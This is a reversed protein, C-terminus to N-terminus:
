LVILDQLNYIEEIYDQEESTRAHSNFSSVRIIMRDDRAFTKYGNCVMGPVKWVDWYVRDCNMCDYASVPYSEPSYYIILGRNYGNSGQVQYITISDSTIKFEFGRPPTIPDIPDTLSCSTVAILIAFILYKM